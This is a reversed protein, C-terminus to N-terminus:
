KLNNELEKIQKKLERIDRNKKKILEKIRLINESIFPKCAKEADKRTQFVSDAYIVEDNEKLQYALCDHCVGSSLYEISDEKILIRNIQIEEIRVSYDYSNYVLRYLEQGIELKFNM